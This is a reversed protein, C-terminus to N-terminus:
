GGQQAAILDPLLYQADPTGLGTVPDWGQGASYGTVSIGNSNFTNDGVTVDHFDRAANSSSAVRYLMPDIFGLNHGALQNGLALIGAWAPASASTGGAGTFTGGINVYLGTSPDADAAVDPVGRQNNFPNPSSGSASQQYSPLPFFTSFGGNSGHAENSNWVTERFHAGDTTLATGGVSTVWPDDAPFGVARNPSIDKQLDLYDSAGLDGSSALYTIGQQTTSQKFLTDWQAIEARGAADSLSPESAGWSMSVISGLHHDLVYQVLQRFQPLGVTGETEAVPSTLVIIKADPAVAHIIEVDLETEGAWGTMENNNPDFPVTGIPSLVQVNATPLAFHKDFSAVDQQLTPSGYSVIDIVTQGKGTIGQKILSDVGYAARFQDIGLPQPQLPGTPTAVPTYPPPTFTMNIPQNGTTNGPNCSSIILALCALVYVMVFGRWPSVPLKKMMM